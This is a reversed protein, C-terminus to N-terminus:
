VKGPRIQWLRGGDRDNLWKKFCKEDQAQTCNIKKLENYVVLPIEFMHHMDGKFRRGKGVNNFSETVIDRIRSVDQTTEITETDNTFDYHHVRRIGTIPDDSLIRSRRTM